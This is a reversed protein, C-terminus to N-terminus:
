KCVIVLLSGCESTTLNEDVHKDDLWCNNDGSSSCEDYEDDEPVYGDREEALQTSDNSHKAMVMIQSPISNM